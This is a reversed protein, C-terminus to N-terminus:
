IAWMAAKTHFSTIKFNSKQYLILNFHFFLVSSPNGHDCKSFICLISTTERWELSPSSKPRFLSREICLTRLMWFATWQFFHSTLWDQAPAAALVSTAATTISACMKNSELISARQNRHDECKHRELQLLLALRTSTVHPGYFFQSPGDVQCFLCAGPDRIGHHGLQYLPELPLQWWHQLQPWQRWPLSGWPPWVM